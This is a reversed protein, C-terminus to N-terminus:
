QSYKMNSLTKQKAMEWMIAQKLRCSQKYWPSANQSMNSSVYADIGPFLVTKEPALDSLVLAAINVRWRFGNKDRENEWGPFAFIARM